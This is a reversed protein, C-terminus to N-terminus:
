QIQIEKVQEKEKKKLTIELIGKDYRASIADTDIDEGLEFIREYHMPRSERLLYKGDTTSKQKDAEIHLQGEKVYVKLSSRDVNPMEMLLLFRDPMEYIDTLPRHTIKKVMEATGAEHYPNRSKVTTEVM